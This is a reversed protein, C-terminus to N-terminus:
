SSDGAFASAVDNDARGDGFGLVVHDEGDDALLKAQVDVMTREADSIKWNDRLARMLYGAPSKKVQGRKIRFRTYEVAQQIREDTWPVGGTIYRMVEVDTAIPRLVVWDSSQWTSLVLRDSELIM